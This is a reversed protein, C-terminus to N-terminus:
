MVKGNPLTCLIAILMDSGLKIHVKGTATTTHNPGRRVVICYIMYMYKWNKHISNNCTYTATVEDM